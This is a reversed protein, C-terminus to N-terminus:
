QTMTQQLPLYGLDQLSATYNAIKQPAGAYIRSATQLWDSADATKKHVLDWAANGFYYSPNGGVQNLADLDKAAAEEHSGFLDCLFVKYTAFDGLDKDSEIEVFGARADDYKKQMFKIEAQDFKIVPNGPDIVSAMNYDLDAQDWKQQKAYITARLMLADKNQANDKIVDNAKALAGDLDNKGYLQYADRLPEVPANAPQAPAAPSDASLNSISALVLFLFFSASTLFLTTKM